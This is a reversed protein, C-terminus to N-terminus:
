WGCGWGSGTGGARVGGADVGGGAAWSGGVGGGDAAVRGDAVGCGGNGGARGDGQDTPQWPVPVM